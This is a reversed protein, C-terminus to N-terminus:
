APVCNVLPVELVFSLRAPSTRTGKNKFNWQTVQTGAYNIGYWTVPDQLPDIAISLLANGTPKTNVERSEKWNGSGREVRQLSREASLTCKKLLQGLIAGVAFTVNLFLSILNILRTFYTTQKRM